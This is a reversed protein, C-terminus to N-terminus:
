RALINKFEQLTEDLERKTNEKRQKETQVMKVEEPTTQEELLAIEKAEKKEKIPEIFIIIFAEKLQPFLGLIFLFSLILIVNLM